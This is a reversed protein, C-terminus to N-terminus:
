HTDRHLRSARSQDLLTGIFLDRVAPRKFRRMFANLATQFSEVPEQRFAIWQNVLDQINGYQYTRGLKNKRARYGVLGSDPVLVPLGHDLAQLMTGSSVTLRHTSVFRRCSKFVDEIFKKSEVYGNTEFLRGEKLLTDRTPEPEGVFQKGPVHRIPAGAHIGASSNDKALLQLFYDYGKYWAGAGFFIVLDDPSFRSTFDEFAPKLRGYQQDGEDDGLANFVKYIEPLWSVQGKFREAVREDKVIVADLLRNEVLVKEFFYRDFTWPQFLRRKLKGLNNRLSGEFHRIKRGSYFEEGPYWLTTAGFIGANYGWLKRVERRSIRVFEDRFFEPEIFLTSDVGFNEQISQLEEAKLHASGSASYKFTSTVQVNDHTSFPKLDPWKDAWGDSIGAAIILEAGHELLIDGIVRCYVQPHGDLNPSYLLVTKAPM